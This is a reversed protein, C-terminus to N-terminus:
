WSRRRAWAVLAGWEDDALRRVPRRRFYPALLMGAVFGGIHAWWAVGGVEGPLAISFTGSMFQGFFWLGIYFFASVELFVPWFFLPVLVIVRAWPFMLMYAGMVGAIAGSAGVTPLTSDANMLYHTLGSLIGCLLYFTLYRLHGMRDEVNDGFIWLAWMNMILHAWGGHLFMSTLFPWLDDAPLGMWRAWWPHTYRAPVIGFYYFLARRQSPGLGLEFWFVACNALIIAWNALPFRRHPITDRIPFM